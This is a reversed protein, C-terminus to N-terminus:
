GGHVAGAVPEAEVVSRETEPFLRRLRVDAEAGDLPTRAAVLRRRVEAADGQPEALLADSIWPRSELAPALRRFWGLREAAIWLRTGDAARVSVARRERVLRACWRGWGGAPVPAALGVGAEGEAATLFGLELLIRELSESSPAPCLVVRKEPAALPLRASRTAGSRPARTAAEAARRPGPRGPAREFARTRREEAAADDLFSHRPAHILGEALASPQELDVAHVAMEGSHLRRLLRILGDLDMHERLCDELAQHVLPHDPVERPGSLNEVCALQDPFVCAILNETQSRQRQAPVAGGAERRIVKLANSAAWRFRTVFLPTDLLAQTLIDGARDPHVFRVVDAPEFQATVGLSILIGDDTAAAQLEFNFQRCFRKRLALGWARNIRAGAFSHIVLHRDGGPDPFREIVLRESSPLAGLTARARGLMERAVPHVEDVSIARRVAAAVLDTRGAGDGFWFPMSAAPGDAPEVRVQGPLVRVIRWIRHGLRLVDGASSEFAFEEDLRGVREGTDARLVEYEFYEPIVGANMALLRRAGPAARWGNATRRALAPCQAAPMGGPNEALLVLVANLSKASLERYPWARRVLRLLTDPRDCGEDLMALLQQALVDLAGAAPNLDECRGASVLRRLTDAEILQHVTLPFLHLLPRAGPRHNARGARQRLLAASGPVGFQGVCDVRGLDLGLELSASSVMLRLRGERFDREVAERHAVDLSGHHAGVSDELGAAALREDLAAAAREVEARTQCFLLMSRHSGALHAVRDMAWDRTALGAWAGLGGPPLELEIRPAPAGAGAMEEIRHEGRDRAGGDRRDDAIVTCSEASEGGALYGALPGPAGLTASVGIRQAQRGLLADLRALSLSLHAGRKGMALVHLEDLVVAQVGSLMARGSRSGLLVFLSEPTTALLEPPRRRQLERESAPTDGCRLGIRPANGRLRSVLELAPALNHTIDRALAKLPAIHLARVGRATDAWSPDARSQDVMAIRELLPRWAALTKGQGTAASLLVHGGARIAPWARIQIATPEGLTEAFWRDFEARPDFLM